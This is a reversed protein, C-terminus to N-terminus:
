HPKKIISPQSPVTIAKKVALRNTVNTKFCEISEELEDHNHDPITDTHIFSSFCEGCLGPLVATINEVLDFNKLEQEQFKSGDATEGLTRTVIHLRINLDAKKVGKGAQKWKIPEFEVFVAPVKFVKKRIIFQINENWIDFHLVGLKEKKIREIIALYIEKRM